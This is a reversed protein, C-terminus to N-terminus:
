GNARRNKVGYPRRPPACHMMDDNPIGLIEIPLSRDDIGNSHVLKATASNYGKRTHRIEETM